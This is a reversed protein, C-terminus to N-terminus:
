AAAPLLESGLPTSNRIGLAEIMEDAIVKVVPPSVANGLQRYAQNDSQPLKWKSEGFDDFGMLRSCERPTLRRPPVRSGQDLLIEAGDKYYRASLTRTVDNPGVLGFGFGNGKARHKAAYEQLYAWLKPTLTYKDHVQFNENLYRNEWPEGSAKNHLVKRLKPNTGLSEFDISELKFDNPTKFGAIFVRERHQPVFWSADVVHSDISYGLEDRLVKEILSFTRGKDHRRLHKVNELLFAQPEHEKLIRVIDFFLTGRASDSFGHARGLSNNKSVGALSFPQCPFGALLVDHPPISQEDILTVDGEITEDSEFNDKYTEQSHLNWESTFVCEGGASEFGLRMGGIGAFLDIFSFDSLPHL